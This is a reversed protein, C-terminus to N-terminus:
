RHPTTPAFTIAIPQNYSSYCFLLSRGPLCTWLQCKDCRLFDGKPVVRLNSHSCMASYTLGDLYSDLPAPAAIRAIQSFSNISALIALNAISPRIQQPQAVAGPIQRMRNSIAHKPKGSAHGRGAHPRDLIHRRRDPSKDRVSWGPEASQQM